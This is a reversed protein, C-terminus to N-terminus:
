HMPASFLVKVDPITVESEEMYPDDLTIRVTATATRPDIFTLALNLTRTGTNGSHEDSFEEMIELEAQASNTTALTIWKFSAATIIYDDLFMTTTFTGENETTPVMDFEPYSGDYTYEGEEGELMLTMTYPELLNAPAESSTSGNPCSTLTLTSMCIAAILAYKILQSKKMYIYARNLILTAIMM